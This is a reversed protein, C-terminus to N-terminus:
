KLKFSASRKLSRNGAKDKVTFELRYGGMGLKKGSARQLKVKNAGAKVAFSATGFRKLKNHKDRKFVTGSARGAETSTFRITATAAAVTATTGTIKPATKDLTGTANVVVEGAMGHGGATGHNTCYFRYTGPTTFTRSVPQDWNVQPQPPEPPLANDDWAVNHETMNANVFTVTEGPKVAVTRPSFTMDETKVTQPDGLAPAAVLGIALVGGIAVGIVRCQRM